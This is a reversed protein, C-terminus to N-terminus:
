DICGGDTNDHADKWLAIGASAIGIDVKQGYEKEVAEITRDVQASDTVECKFARVKVGSSLSLEETLSSPDTSTYTIAVDAGAAVDTSTGQQYFVVCRSRAISHDGV